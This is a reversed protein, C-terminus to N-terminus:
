RLTLQSYDVYCRGGTETVRIGEVTDNVGFSTQMQRHGIGPASAITMWGGSKKVQFVVTSRCGHYLGVRYDADVGGVSRASGFVYTHDSMDAFLHFCM